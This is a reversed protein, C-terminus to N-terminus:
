YSKDRAAHGVNPFGTSPKVKMAPICFIQSVFVAESRVLIGRFAQLLM